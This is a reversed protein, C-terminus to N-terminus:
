NEKQLSNEKITQNDTEVQLCVPQQEVVFPGNTEETKQKLNLAFLAFGETMGNFFVSKDPM